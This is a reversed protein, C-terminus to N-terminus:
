PLAKGLHNGGLRVLEGRPGRELLHNVWTSISERSSDSEIALTNVAGERLELSATRAGSLLATAVVAAGIGERGLLDDGRVVYVIPEGRIAAAKTMAFAEVLETRIDHWSDSVDPDAVFVFGPAASDLAEALAQDRCRVNM